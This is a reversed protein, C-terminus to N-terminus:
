VLAGRKVVCKEFDNLLQEIPQSLSNTDILNEKVLEINGNVRFSLRLFCVILQKDTPNNKVLTQCASLAEHHRYTLLCSTLLYQTAPLSSKDKELLKKALEYAKEIDGIQVLTKLTLNHTLHKNKSIFSLLRLYFLAERYYEFKILFKVYSFVLRENFFSRIIYKKWLLLAKAELGKHSLASARYDILDVFHKRKRQKHFRSVKNSTFFYLHDKNNTEVYLRCKILASELDDPLRETIFGALKYKKEKLARYSIIKFNINNPAMAVCEPHSVVENYIFEYVESDPSIHNSKLAEFVVDIRASEKELYKKILFNLYKNSFGEYSIELNIELLTSASFLAIKENKGKLSVKIFQCQYYLLFDSIIDSSCDGIIKVEKYLSSVKDQDHLDLSMIEAEKELLWLYDCLLEKGYVKLYYKVRDIKKESVLFLLANEMYEIDLIKEALNTTHKKNFKVKLANIKLKVPLVSYVKKKVNSIM